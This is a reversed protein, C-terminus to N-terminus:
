KPVEGGNQTSIKGLDYHMVGSIMEGRILGKDFLVQLYPVPDVDSKYKSLEVIVNEASGTGIQALAFIVQDQKSDAPNFCAPVHLPKFEERFNENSYNM